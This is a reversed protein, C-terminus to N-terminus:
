ARPDRTRAAHGVFAGRPAAVTPDQAAGQRHARPRALRSEAECEPQHSDGGNGLEQARAVVARYPRQGEGGCLPRWGALAGCIRLRAANSGQAISDRRGHSHVRLDRGSVSRAEPIRPVRRTDGCGDATRAGASVMCTGQRARGLGEHRGQLALAGCHRFRCDPAHGPDSDSDRLASPGPRLRDHAVVPVRQEEAPRHLGQNAGPGADMRRPYRRARSLM